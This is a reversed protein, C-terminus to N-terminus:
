INFDLRLFFGGEMLHNFSYELRLVKDFFFVMDLGLGFGYLLQNNFATFDESHPDNIFGLSSNLSGILRVPMTRLSKIPMVKGFNVRFDLMHLRLRNRFYIMDLGDVVYLDYGYLFANGFGLARNDNFPQQQRIISLKGGTVFVANFRKGIPLFVSIDTKLFLNNRDPHIGVGDKRIHFNFSFGEWPYPRVDVRQFQYTYYLSLYRQLTRGGLFYNPNIEEAVTSDIRNYTYQMGFQHWFENKPRFTLSSYGRWSQFIFRDEDRYFFQINGSNSYNIERQQVFKGGVNMWLRQRKDLYPTSYELAYEQSYGFRGTLKLRDRNGTLNTHVFEGGIRMRQFSRNHQVWWVKINRDVLEFVPTPYIYLAEKVSVVVKGEAAPGELYVKGENFLSTNMVWQESEKLVTPLAQLAITDGVKFTLERLIIKEKTHRNGEIRIQSIVVVNSNQALGLVAPLAFFITMIHTVFRFKM